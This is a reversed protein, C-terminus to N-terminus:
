NQENKTQMELISWCRRKNANIDDIMVMLWWWWWWRCRWRGTSTDGHFDRVCGSEHKCTRRWYYIRTTKVKMIWVDGLRISNNERAKYIEEESAVNKQKADEYKKEQKKIQWAIINNQTKKGTETHTLTHTNKRKQPPRHKRKRKQIDRKWKERGKKTKSREWTRGKKKRCKM